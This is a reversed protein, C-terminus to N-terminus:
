RLSKGEREHLKQCLVASHLINMSRELDNESVECDIAPTHKKQAQQLVLRLNQIFKESPNMNDISSPQGEDIAPSGKKECKDQIHKVLNRGFTPTKMIEYILKLNNLNTFTRTVETYLKQNDENQFQSLETQVNNASSSLMTSTEMCNQLLNPLSIDLSCIDAIPINSTPKLESPEVQRFYISHFISIIM